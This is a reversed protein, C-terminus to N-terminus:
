ENSNDNQEHSNNIDVVEVTFILSHGSLPHNFDVEVRDNKISRITGTVDAGEPTGFTYSLGIEPELEQPFDNLPMVHVNDEDREGFCQEPTLTLTQNDGVKLGYIALEMGEPLDDKGMTIEVPDDDFSSEVLTGNTLAISYHMLVHSHMTVEEPM